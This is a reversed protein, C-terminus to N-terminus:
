QYSCTVDDTGPFYVLSFRTYHFQFRLGSTLLVCERLFSQHLEGCLKNKFSNERERVDEQSIKM